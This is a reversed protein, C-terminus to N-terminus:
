GNPVGEFATTMPEDFTKKFAARKQERESIDKRLVFRCLWEVNSPQYVENKSECIRKQDEYNKHIDWVQRMVRSKSIAEARVMAEKMSKRVNDGLAAFSAKKGSIGATMLAEVMETAAADDLGMDAIGFCDTENNRGGDEGGSLWNAVNLIDLSKDTGKKGGIPFPQGIRFTLPGMSNTPVIIEVPKTNEDDLWPNFIQDPNEILREHYKEQFIQAIPCTVVLLRM